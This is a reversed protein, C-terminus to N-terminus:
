FPAPPGAHERYAAGTWPGPDAIVIQTGVGKGLM